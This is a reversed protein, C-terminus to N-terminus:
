TLPQRWSDLPSPPPPPLDRLRMDLWDTLTKGSPELARLVEQRYKRVTQRRLGLRQEIWENSGGEAMLVAVARFSPRVSELVQRLRPDNGRYPTQILQEILMGASAAPLPDLMVLGSRGADAIRRSAAYGRHPTMCYLALPAHLMGALDLAADLDSDDGLVLQVRAQHAVRQMQGMAHRDGTLLPPIRAHGLVQILVAQRTATAAVVLAGGRQRRHETEQRRAVTGLYRWVPNQHWVPHPVAVATLREVRVAREVAARLQAGSVPKILPPMCGLDTFLAGYEAYATCPIIPVEPHQERLSIATLVGDHPMQFDLLVVTLGPGPAARVLDIGQVGGHAALVEWAPPAAARLAAAIAPDDDIVIVRVRTAENM